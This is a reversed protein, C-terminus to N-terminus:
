ASTRDARGGSASACAVGGAVRPSCRYRWGGIIESIRGGAIGGALLEDLPAIGSAMRRDKPTLEKGRFVGSFELQQPNPRPLRDFSLVSSKLHIQHNLAAARM